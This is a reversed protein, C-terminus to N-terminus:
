SHPRIGRHVDEEYQIAEQLSRGAIHHGRFISMMTGRGFIYGLCFALLALVLAPVWLFWFSLM